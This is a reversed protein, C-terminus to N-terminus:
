LKNNQTSQKFMTSFYIHKCYIFLLISLNQICAEKNINVTLKNQTSQKILYKKFGIFNVFKQHM